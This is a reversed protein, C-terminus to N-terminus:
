ATATDLDLAAILSVCDGCCTPGTPDFSRGWLKYWSEARLGCLTFSTGMDKAHEMSLSQLCVYGEASVNQRAFQVAVIYRSSSSGAGFGVLTM